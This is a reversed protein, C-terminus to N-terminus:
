PRADTRVPDTSARRDQEDTVVHHDADDAVVRPGIRMPGVSVAEGGDTASGGRECLSCAPGM